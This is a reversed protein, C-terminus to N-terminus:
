KLVTAGPLLSPSLQALVQAVFLIPFLLTRGQGSPHTAGQPLIQASVAGRAFGLRCHADQAAPLTAGPLLTLSVFTPRSCWLNFCVWGM